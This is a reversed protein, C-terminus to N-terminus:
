QRGGGGMGGTCYCAAGHGGRVGGVKDMACLAVWGHCVPAGNRKM